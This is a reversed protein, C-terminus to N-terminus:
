TPLYSSSAGKYVIELLVSDATSFNPINLVIPPNGALQTGTGIIEVQTPNVCDFQWDMSNTILSGSPFTQQAFTSTSYFTTLVFLALISLHKKFLKEM